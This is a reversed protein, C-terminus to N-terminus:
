LINLDVYYMKVGRKSLCVPLMNQISWIFVSSVELLLHIDGAYLPVAERAFRFILENARNCGLAFWIGNVNFQKNDILLDMFLLWLVRIGQSCDQVLFLQQIFELKISHELDKRYRSENGLDKLFDCFTQLLLCDEESYVQCVADLIQTVYYGINIETSIQGSLNAQSLCFNFRLLM